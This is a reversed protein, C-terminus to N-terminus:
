ILIEIKAQAKLSDVLADIEGSIRETRLTEGIDAEVEEFSSTGAERRDYVQIIHFGFRTQVVDSVEGAKLAFAAEEFPAVMQGRAFFGLEGGRPASPGESLERALTAFDEGKRVRALIAEARARDAQLSEPPDSQGAQILIHKAAVQEEHRFEDPHEEYYRLREERPIDIRAAITEQIFDRITLNRAIQERFTEETLGQMSLATRFMEEDHYQGVISEIERNLEEESVEFGAKRSQQYLLETAIMQDLINARLSDVRTSDLEMGFSRFQNSLNDVSLSLDELPIIEDNVVAAAGEPAKKGCSPAVFLALAVVVLGGGLLAPYRRYAHM